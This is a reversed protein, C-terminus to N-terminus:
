EGFDIVDDEYVNIVYGEGPRMEDINNFHSRPIYFKGKGNKIINLNNGLPNLVNEIIYDMDHSESLPYAIFNWGEHLEIRTNIHEEGRITLTVPIKVKVNYAEQSNWEPINNFEYDPTFFRANEDKVM